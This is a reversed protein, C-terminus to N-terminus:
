KAGRHYPHGTMITRARYIQEILMVRALEHPWTMTGFAVTWDARELVSPAFGDAGGVVFALDRVGKDRWDALRRAFGASGVTQGREDLVITRATDPLARLLREGERARRAIANRQAPAEVEIVRVPWDIRRLYLNCLDRM